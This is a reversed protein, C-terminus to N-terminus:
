ARHGRKKVRESRRQIATANLLCKARPIVFAADSAFIWIARLFRWQRKASTMLKM